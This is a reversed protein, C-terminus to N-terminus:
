CASLRAPFVTAAGSEVGRGQRRTGPDVLPNRHDPCYKQAWAIADDPSKQARGTSAAGVRAQALIGGKGPPVAPGDRPGLRASKMSGAQMRMRTMSSLWSM